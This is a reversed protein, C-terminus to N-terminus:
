RPQSPRSLVPSGTLIATTPTPCRPRWWARMRDSHGSTVSVATTSTLWDRARSTAVSRPVVGNVSQRSIRSETSATVIAAGVCACRSIASAKRSRLTWTNTSFGIVVVIADNRGFSAVAAAGMDGRRKVAIRDYIAWILLSGFLLQDVESGSKSAVAIRM